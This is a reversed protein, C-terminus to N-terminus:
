RATHEWVCLRVSLAQARPYLSGPVRSIIFVTLFAFMLYVPLVQKVSFYWVIRRSLYSNAWVLFGLILFLFLFIM